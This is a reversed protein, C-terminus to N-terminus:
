CKKLRNISKYNNINESDKTNQFDSDYLYSYMIDFHAFASEYTEDLKRNGFFGIHHMKRNYEYIDRLFQEPYRLDFIFHDFGLTRGHYFYIYKVFDMFPRNGLLNYFDIKHKDKLHDVKSKIQRSVSDLIEPLHSIKWEIGFESIQRMYSGALTKKVQGNDDTRYEYCMKNLFYSGIHHNEFGKASPISIDQTYDYYSPYYGLNASCRFKTFIKDSDSDSSVGLEKYLYKLLYRIGSIDTLIHMKAYFPTDVFGNQWCSRVLSDFFEFDISRVYFIIHYHARLTTEGLESVYFYKFYGISRHYKLASRLRKLFDSVDKYNFVSDKPLHEDDYTLTQWYAFSDPCHDRLYRFEMYNRQLLSEKKQAICESCHGCPVRIFERMGHSRYASRNKILRPRLCM